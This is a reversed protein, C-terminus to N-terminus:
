PVERADNRRKSSEKQRERGRHVIAGEPRCGGRQEASRGQGCADGTVPNEKPPTNLFINEGGKEWGGGKGGVATVPSDLNEENEIYGTVVDAFDDSDEVHLDFPKGARSSM